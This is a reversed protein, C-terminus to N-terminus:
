LNEALGTKTCDSDEMKKLSVVMISDIKTKQTSLRKVIVIVVVDATDVTDKFNKDKRLELTM